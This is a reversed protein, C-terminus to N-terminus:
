GFHTTIETEYDPDQYVAYKFPYTGPGFGFLPKVKSMNIAAVWRNVRELNSQDNNINSISELHQEIGEASNQKNLSLRYIIEDQNVLAITVIAVLMMILTYFRVRFVFLLSFLLSVAVSLWAARTFSFILGLALTILVPISIVFLSFNLKINYAFVIFLLVIPIFFAIAASYVGHAEYFPQMIEFSARQSFSDESHKYLTFVIVGVLPIIYLWLYNSINKFNKFLVVALFYFVVVYWFRSTFFKLSILIESSTFSTLLVWSLNIIIAITIPHRFVRYDYTGDIIYKFIVLGCLCIIFPEDPLTLGMGGVVNLDTISLPVIFVIFLILLDIRLIGLLIVIFVIPILGLWFFGIAIAISNVILFIASIIYFWRLTISSKILNIM